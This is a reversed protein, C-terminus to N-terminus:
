LSPNKFEKLLIKDSNLDIYEFYSDGILNYIEKRNNISYISSKKPGSILLLSDNKFKIDTVGRFTNIYEGSTYNFLYYTKLDLGWYDNPPLKTQKPWGGKDLEGINVLLYNNNQSISVGKIRERYGIKVEENSAPLIISGKEKLSQNVDPSNGTIQEYVREFLDLIVSEKNLTSDYTYTIDYIPGDQAVIENYFFTFFSIFLIKKM